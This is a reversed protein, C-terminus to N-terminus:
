HQTAMRKGHNVEKERLKGNLATIAGNVVQSVFSLTEDFFIMLWSVQYEYSINM